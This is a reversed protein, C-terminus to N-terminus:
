EEQRALRARKARSEIATTSSANFSVNPSGAASSESRCAGFPLEYEIDDTLLCSTDNRPTVVHRHIWSRFPGRTMRDAFMEGSVYEVHEAEITQWVPGVRVRLKVRTGVHLSRPPEVIRTKQWPPQLRELADAREHFAFVVRAPAAIVSSKVFKLTKNRHGAREGLGSTASPRRPLKVEIKATKIGSSAPRNPDQPRALAPGAWRAVPSMGSRRLDIPVIPHDFADCLLVSRGGPHKEPVARPSRSMFLRSFSAAAARVSRRVRREPSRQLPQGPIAPGVSLERPPLGAPIPRQRRQALRTRRSEAHASHRRAPFPRHRDAACPPRRVPDPLRQPGLRKKERSEPVQTSTASGAEPERRRRSELWRERGVHSRCCEVGARSRRKRCRPVTRRCPPAARRARCRSPPRRHGRSPLHRPRSCPPAAGLAPGPHSRRSCAADDAPDSPGTQLHKTLHHPFVVVDHGELLRSNGLRHEVRIDVLDEPKNIRAPVRSASSNAFSGASEGSRM